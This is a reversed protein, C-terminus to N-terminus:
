IWENLTMDIPSQCGIVIKDEPLLVYSSEKFDKEYATIKADSKKHARFSYLFQGPPTESEMSRGSDIDAFSRGSQERSLIIHQDSPVAAVLNQTGSSAGFYGAGNSLKSVASAGTTTTESREGDETNGQVRIEQMVPVMCNSAISYKKPSGDRNGFAYHEHSQEVIFDVDSRVDKATGDLLKKDFGGSGAFNSVTVNSISSTVTENGPIVDISGPRYFKSSKEQILTISQETGLASPVESVSIKGGHGNEHEIASKLLTLFTNQSSSSSLNFGIAIGKAGATLTAQVGSDLTDGNNVVGLHAVHGAGASGNGTDSIFYDVITEDTSKLTIKQGALMGHAATGNTVKITTRGSGVPSATLRSWSVLDRITTVATKKYNELKIVTGHTGSTKTAGTSTATFVEGVFPM